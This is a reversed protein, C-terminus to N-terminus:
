TAVVRRIAEDIAVVGGSVVFTVKDVSVDARIAITVAPAIHRQEAVDRVLEFAMNLELKKSISEAYEVLDVNPDTRGFLWGRRLGSVSPLLSRSPHKTAAGAASSRRQTGPSDSAPARRTEGVQKTKERQVFRAEGTGPACM